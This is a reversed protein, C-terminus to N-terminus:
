VVAVYIFNIKNEVILIDLGIVHWQSPNEPNREVYEPKGNRLLDHFLDVSMFVTNPKRHNFDEARFKHYLREIERMTKM